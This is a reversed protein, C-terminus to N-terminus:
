RYPDVAALGMQLLLQLAILLPRATLDAPAYAGKERAAAFSSLLWEGAADFLSSPPMSAAGPSSPSRAPSLPDARDAPAPPVRAPRRPRAM